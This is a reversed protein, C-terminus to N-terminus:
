ILGALEISFVFFSEFEPIRMPFIFLKSKAQFFRITFWINRGSENVIIGDSQPGPLNRIKEITERLTEYFNM